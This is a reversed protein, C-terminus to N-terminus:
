FAQYIEGLLGLHLFVNLVCRIRLPYLAPKVLDHNMDWQGLAVVKKVVVKNTLDLGLGLDWERDLALDMHMYIYIHDMDLLEFPLAQQDLKNLLSLPLPVLPMPPPVSLPL